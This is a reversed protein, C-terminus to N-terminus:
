SITNVFIQLSSYVNIEDTITPYLKEMFDKINNMYKISNKRQQNMLENFCMNNYYGYQCQLEYVNNNEKTCMKSFAYDKNKLKSTDVTSMDEIEFKNPDGTEFLKEM